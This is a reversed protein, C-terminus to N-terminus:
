KFADNHHIEQSVGKITSHKITNRQIEISDETNDTRMDSILNEEKKLFTKMILQIPHKLNQFETIECIQQARM